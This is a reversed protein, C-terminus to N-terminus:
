DTYMVINTAAWVVAPHQELKKIADIVAAKGRTHIHITLLQNYDMGSLEQSMTGFSTIDAIEEPKMYPSFFSADEVGKLKPAKKQMKVLVTGEPFNDEVTATSYSKPEDYVIGTTTTTPAATTTTTTPPVTTTTTTTTSDPTFEISENSVDPLDSSTPATGGCATLLILFGFVCLLATTRRIM